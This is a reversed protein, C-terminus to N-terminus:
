IERRNNIKDDRGQLAVTMTLMCTYWEASRMSINYCAGLLATPRWKGHPVCGLSHIPIQASVIQKM